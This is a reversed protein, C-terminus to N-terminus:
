QKSVYKGLLLPVTMQYGAVSDYHYQGMCDGWVTVIDDKYVRKVKGKFAIAVNNDWFGYGMNTVAILISTRPQLGGPYGEWYQGAGADQIQFVQGTIKYKRGKLSGADKDLVKFAVSRCSAKYMDAASKVWLGRSLNAVIRRYVSDQRSAGAEKFSALCAMAQSRTGRLDNSYPSKLNGIKRLAAAWRHDLSKLENPPVVDWWSSLTDQARSTLSGFADEDIKGAAGSAAVWSMAKLLKARAGNLRAMYASRSMMTPSPEPSASSVPSTAVVTGSQTSASGGKDSQDGVSAAVVILIILAAVAGLVINRTRHSKSPTAVLGIQSTPQAFEPEALSAAPEAVTAPAVEPVVPALRIPPPTESLGAWQRVWERLGDYAWVLEGKDDFEAVQLPTLAVSGELTLEGEECMVHKGSLASSDGFSAIIMTGGILSTRRAGQSTISSSLDAPYVANTVSSRTDARMWRLAAVAAWASLVSTITM